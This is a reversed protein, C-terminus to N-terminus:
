AVVCTNDNSYNMFWLNNKRLINVLCWFDLVGIIGRDKIIVLEDYIYM